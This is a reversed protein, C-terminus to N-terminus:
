RYGNLAEDDGQEAEDRSTSSWLTIFKCMQSFNDFNTYLGVICYEKMIKISGIQFIVPDVM